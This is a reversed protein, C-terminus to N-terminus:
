NEEPSQHGAGAAAAARPNTQPRDAALYAALEKERLVLWVPWELFAHCAEEEM